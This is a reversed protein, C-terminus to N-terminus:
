KGCKYPSYVKGKEISTEATLCSIRKGDASYKHPNVHRNQSWKGYHLAFHLHTVDGACENRNPIKNFDQVHGILDGPRIKSSLESSIYPDFLELSTLPDLHEYHAILPEKDSLDSEVLVVGGCPGYGKYVVKGHTSSYVPRGTGARFDIGEHRTVTRGGFIAVYRYGDCATGSQYDSCIPVSSCGSIVLLTVVAIALKYHKLLFYMKKGWYNQVHLVELALMQPKPLNASKKSRLFRSLKGLDM